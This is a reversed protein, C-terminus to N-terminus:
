SGGATPSSASIRIQRLGEAITKMPLYLHDPQNVFRQFGNRECFVRAADDKAEVIVAVAGVHTTLAFAQGLAHGLLSSGLGHSQYHQDLALRGLLFTPLTPYRPLRRGIEPALETPEISCSSLTYYGIVTREGDPCLVYVAVVSRRQEQSAQQHLYRDLEEVGCSFAARNHHRGLPEVHYETM